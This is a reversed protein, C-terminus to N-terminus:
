SLAGALKLMVAKQSHLRNEAQTFILSREDHLLAGEIEYGHHAPLCHLIKLDEQRHRVEEAAVAVEEDVPDAALGSEHSRKREIESVQDNTPSSTHSTTHLTVLPLAICIECHPM